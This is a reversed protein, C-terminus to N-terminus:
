AAFTEQTFGSANLDGMMASAKGGKESFGQEIGYVLLMPYEFASNLKETTASNTKELSYIAIGNYDSLQYNKNILEKQNDEMFLMLKQMEAVRIRQPAINDIGGQQIGVNVVDSTYKPISLDCYAQVVLLLLVMIIPITSKKLYKMLKRM